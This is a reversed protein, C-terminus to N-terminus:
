KQTDHRRRRTWDAWYEDQTVFMEDLLLRREVDYVRRGYDYELGWYRYYDEPGQSRITEDIDGIVRFRTVRDRDTDEFVPIHIAFPSEGSSLVLSEYNTGLTLLIRELQPVISDDSIEHIVLLSDQFQIRLEAIDIAGRERNRDRLKKYAALFPRLVFSESGSKILDYAIGDLLLQVLHSLSVSSTLDVFLRTLGGAGAPRGRVFSLYEASLDSRFEDIGDLDVFRRQDSSIWYKVTIATDGKM